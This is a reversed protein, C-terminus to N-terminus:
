HASVPQLAKAADLDRLANSLRDSHPQIMEDGAEIDSDVWRKVERVEEEARSILEATTLGETAPDM